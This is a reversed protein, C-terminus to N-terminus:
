GCFTEGHAPTASAAPSAGLLERAGASSSQLTNSCPVFTYDGCAVPTVKGGLLTLQLETAEPCLGRTVHARSTSRLMELVDQVLVLVVGPLLRMFRMLEPSLNTPVGLFVHNLSVM